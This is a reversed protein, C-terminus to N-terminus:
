RDFMAKLREGSEAQAKGFDTEAAHQGWNPKQGDVDEFGYEGQLQWSSFGRGTKSQLAPDAALAAAARGVYLPTESYAFHPDKETADRWTLATVGFPDLMAESRLFGPTIAVAAVSTDRLEKALRGGAHM